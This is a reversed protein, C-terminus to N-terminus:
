FLDIEPSYNAEVYENQIQTSKLKPYNGDFMIHYM